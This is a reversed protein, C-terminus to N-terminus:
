REKILNKRPDVYVDIKGTPEENLGLLPEHIYINAYGKEKLLGIVELSPSYRVNTAAESNALSAFYIVAEKNHKAKAEIRSAIYEKRTNNSSVVADILKEEIGQYDAQLQKTDKPLCYGGYGFSPKNYGQGIRPDLCVGSILTDSNMKKETAYTDLENFYAVRMALYTNSFLKIAEAEDSTAFLSPVEEDCISSLVEMIKSADEGEGGVIIRSPARCDELCTAERLFEPSFYIRLSPYAKRMRETYGVPVTSKILVLASPNFESIAAFCEELHSTDFKGSDPSFDTPVALIILEADRYSSAECSAHVNAVELAKAIDPNPFPPIKHNLLCVRDKNVDILTVEHSSSLAVGLSLGVYGIGAIAIKM